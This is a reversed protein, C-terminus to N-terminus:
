ASRAANPNGNAPSDSSRAPHPAPTASPLPIAFFARILLCCFCGLYRTRAYVRHRRQPRARATYLRYRKHRIQKRSNACRPSSGPTVLAEHHRLGERRVHRIGHGIQERPDAVGVDGVLIVEDGRGGLERDRDEVDELSLPEDLAVLALAFAHMPEQPDPQLVTGALLP